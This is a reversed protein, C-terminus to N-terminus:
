LGRIVDALDQVTSEPLAVNPSQLQRRDSKAYLSQVQAFEGNIQATMDAVQEKTIRSQAKSRKKATHLHKVAAHRAERTTAGSKKPKLTAQKSSKAM